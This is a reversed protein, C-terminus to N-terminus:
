KKSIGGGRIAEEIPTKSLAAIEHDDEAFVAYLQVSLKSLEAYLYVHFVLEGESDFRGPLESTGDSSPSGKAAPTRLDARSEDLLSIMTLYVKPPAM